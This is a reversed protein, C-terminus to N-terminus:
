TASCVGFMPIDALPFILSSFAQECAHRWGGDDRLRGALNAEPALARLNSDKRAHTGKANRASAPRLTWISHGHL